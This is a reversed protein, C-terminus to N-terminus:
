HRQIEQKNKSYHEKLLDLLLDQSQLLVSDKAKFIILEDKKADYQAIKRKKYFMLVVSENGEETAWLVDAEKGMKIM